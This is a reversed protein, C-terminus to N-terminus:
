TRRSLLRLTKQFASLTKNHEKQSRYTLDYCKRCGFYSGSPPLYLKGVRKLCPSGNISLPCHLWNRVGGFYCESQTMSVSYSFLRQEKSLRNTLSYRLHLSGPEGISSCPTIEVEIADKDRNWGSTWEISLRHWDFLLRDRHLRFVSIALCEEVLQRNSWEWRGM